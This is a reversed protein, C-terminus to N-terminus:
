LEREQVVPKKMAKVLEEATGYFVQVIQTTNGESDPNKLPVEIAVILKNVVIKKTSAKEAKAIFDAPNMNWGLKGASNTSAGASWVSAGYIKKANQGEPKWLHRIDKESGDYSKPDGSNIWLFKQESTKSTNFQKQWNEWSPIKEAKEAENVVELYDQFSKM